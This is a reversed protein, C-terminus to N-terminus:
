MQSGFLTMPVHTGKEEFVMSWSIHNVPGIFGGRVHGLVWPNM